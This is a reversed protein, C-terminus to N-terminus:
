WLKLGKKECKKLFEMISDTSTSYKKFFEKGDHEKVFECIAALREGMTKRLYCRYVMDIVEKDM